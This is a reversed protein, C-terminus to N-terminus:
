LSIRTMLYGFTTFSRGIASEMLETARFVAFGAQINLHTRFTHTVRLDVEQGLVRRGDDAAVAQDVRFHHLDARLVTKPDIRLRASLSADHLGQATYTVPFYDMMGYFAHNTAFLTNFTQSTADGPTEDGSLITYLGRVDLPRGIDFTRGVEASVLYARIDATTTPTARSRGFQGIAEIDYRWTGPQGNSRIGTTTRELRRFAETDASASARNNDHIAFAALTHGEAVPITTHIATLNQVAGPSQELRAAFAKTTIGRTVNQVSVADFSRGVNSWGLSGILRQKGLVLEQRGFRVSTATGAIDQIDVYAQHLGIADASADLTGRGRSPDGSGFFRADQVQVLASMGDGPQFAVALRTRLLHDNNVATSPRRADTTSRHRVEGTLSWRQAQMRAIAPRVADLYATLEALTRQLDDYRQAQETSDARGEDEKALAAVHLRLDQVERQLVDFQSAADIQAAYLAAHRAQVESFIATAAAVSDAQGEAERQLVVRLARVEDQVRALHEDRQNREQAVADRLSTELAAITRYLTEADQAQVPSGQLVVM